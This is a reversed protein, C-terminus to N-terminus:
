LDIYHMKRNEFHALKTYGIDQLMSKMQEFEFAVESPHHADSGLLLPIDLNYMKEIIRESPYQENVEKRLGGTNVEMVKGKAKILELTEFAKNEVLEKEKPFLNFKKPLDFHSVIDFDFSDSLIMNQLTEYYVLYVQDVGIDKYEQLFRSDDFCWNGRKGELIHVSGLIYDLYKKFKELKKNLLAEQNHLFDIEFGIRISIKDRYKEQLDQIDGLYNKIESLTMAYEEYPIREIDTLFEYPFHDSVGITKVRSKIASKVYDEISGEAHHCRTHHTHWDEFTKM